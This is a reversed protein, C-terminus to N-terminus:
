LSLLYTSLVVYFYSPVIVDSIKAVPFGPPVYINSKNIINQNCVLGAYYDASNVHTYV